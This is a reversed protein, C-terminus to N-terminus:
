LITSGRWRRGRNKYKSLVRHRIRNREQAERTKEATIKKEKEKKSLKKAKSDPAASNVWAAFNADAVGNLLSAVRSGVLNITETTPEKPISENIKRREEIGAKRSASIPMEPPTLRKEDSKSIVKRDWKYKRRMLPSRMSEVIGPPSDTRVISNPIYTREESEEKSTAFADDEVPEPRPWPIIINEHYKVRRYPMMKGYDADWYMGKFVVEDAAIETRKEVGDKGKEVMTGVVKVDRPSIPRPYNIVHSQQGAQWYQRPIVVKRTEAMEVFLRNSPTHYALVKTVHGKFKGKTILVRDGVEVKWQEPKTFRKEEPFEGKDSRFAPLQTQASFKFLMKKTGEPFRDINVGYRKTADRLSSLM